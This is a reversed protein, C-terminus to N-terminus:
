LADRVFATLDDVEADSLGLPVFYESLSSSPVHSNESVGANKYKIVDQISTFSAGHGYFPSDKLNYLQPTKFKFDDDANGTFGGRGRRVDEPVTGNFPDLNFRPDVSGDLDNMGLAHFAMSNLAPGTHCSSCQAEGFFLAAGRLEQENMARIEGRLWRQFPAETALLVREYAAIALAASLRSIPEQASPFAKSFLDQYEGIDTVRSLEIGDMRHVALGAHAQTELGHLGLFNSEKPGTWSAETGHNDGVAGFQGNWLMLEQYASNMTTPSRIPQIDPVHEESHSDYLPNAVRGEGAAGFGLGGEAIGQPLNAQFGAQAFHCSACSYTEHGDVYRNNVALATEHYLLQGLRVKADTLPNKPDQPIKHLQDSDPLRYYALGGYPAQTALLSRVQGNLSKHAKSAALGTEGFASGDLSEPESLLDSNITDCASLAILWFAGTILKVAGLPRGKRSTSSTTCSM